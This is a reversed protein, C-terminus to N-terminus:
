FVLGITIASYLTYRDKNINRVTHLAGASNLFIIGKNQQGTMTYYPDPSSIDFLETGTNNDTLNVILQLMIHNNDCHTTTEFGAMDYNIAAQTQTNNIYYDKGFPWLKKFYAKGTDTDVQAAACIFEARHQDPLRLLKTL